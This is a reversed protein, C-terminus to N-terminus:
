PLKSPPKLKVDCVNLLARAQTRAIKFSDHPDSARDLAKKLVTTLKEETNTISFFEQRDVGSPLNRETASYIGPGVAPLSTFDFSGDVADRPSRGVFLGSSRLGVPFTDLRALIPMLGPVHHLRSGRRLFPGRLRMLKYSEFRRGIRQFRALMNKRRQGAKGLKSEFMVVGGPRCLRIMENIAAQRESSSLWLFVNTCVVVDVCGSPIASLDSADGVVGIVNKRLDEKALGEELRNVQMDLGVYFDTKFFNTTVMRSCGIDLAIGSQYHALERTLLRFLSQNASDLAPDHM